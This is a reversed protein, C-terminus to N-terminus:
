LKEVQIGKKKFLFESVPKEQDITSYNGDGYYVISIGANIIMRACVRCPYHSVYISAGETPIGMRASETIANEEAHGIYSYKAPRELMKPHIDIGDPVSNCASVATGHKKNIIIAGVKTDPDPSGSAIKLVLDMMSATM